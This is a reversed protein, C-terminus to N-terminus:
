HLSVFGAQEVLKQGEASLLLNAYAVGAKEDLTGDRRVVVFIPYVMPYTGDRVAQTNIQGQLGYPKVYLNSNVKAIPIPRITQQGMVSSMSGFSIAGPTQSTARISSTWDRTALLKPSLSHMGGVNSLLINITSSNSPNFAVPTIPLDPGGVQSWNQIKGTYIAQLQDLSLGPINLGLNTYFVIGTLAIPVQQIKVAHKKAREYESDSLPLASQAFSLQNDIMQAIAKDSGPAGFIPETYQFQIQPQAKAIADVVKQSRLPAFVIAGGYGFRGRPVNPVERMSNYPQIDAAPPSPTAPAPAAASVAATSRTSRTRMRWLWFSGGILLLSLFGVGLATLINWGQHNKKLVRHDRHEHREEYESLGSDERLALAESPRSM